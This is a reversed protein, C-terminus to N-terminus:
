LPRHSHSSDKTVVAKRVWSYFMWNNQKCHCHTSWTCWYTVDSLKWHVKCVTLHRREINANRQTHKFFHVCVCESLVGIPPVPPIKHYFFSPLGHFNRHKLKLISWLSIVQSFFVCVSTTHSGIWNHVAKNAFAFRPTGNASHRNM